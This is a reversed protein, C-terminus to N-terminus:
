TATTIIKCDCNCLMLSRVADPARILQAVEDVDTSKRIFVTRRAAFDTPPHGGRFLYQYAEFLFRKGTGGTNRRTSYPHRDPGPASERKTALLEEFEERSVDWVIGEAASQVNRLMDEGHEDPALSERAWGEM